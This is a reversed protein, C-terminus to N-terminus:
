AAKKMKLDLLRWRGANKTILNESDYDTLFNHAVDMYNSEEDGKVKSTFKRYLFRLPVFLVAVLILVVLPPIILDFARDTGFKDYFLQRYFLLLILAWLL